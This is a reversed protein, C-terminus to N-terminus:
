TNPVSCRCDKDNYVGWSDLNTLFTKIIKIDNDDLEYLRYVLQDIENELKSIPERELEKKDKEYRRLIEEVIDNSKPIIIRIVDNKKVNKGSLAIQIYKAKVESDVIIPKEKGIIVAFETGELNREIKPSLMKHSSKFKILILDFEKGLKRYKRIYEDPFTNIRQEIKVKNLIKEVRKIIELAIKEDEKTKPLKIPLRELYVRTFSYYRGQVFTSMKTIILFMLKSNLIGLLYKMDVSKKPIIAVCSDMIYFDGNEDLAFRNIDSIRPTIIKPKSLLNPDRERWLSYWGKGWEEIYKGDLKRGQLKDYFKHLYKSLNPYEDLNILNGQSDYPYIIYRGDWSIRWREVDRGKLVKKCANREISHKIITDHNVVYIKEGFEGGITIGQFIEKSIDNLPVYADSRLLKEIIDSLRGESLMWSEQSLMGQRIEYTNFLDTHETPKHLKKILERSSIESVGNKIEVFLFTNKSSNKVNRCRELIIICPYNTADAFIRTDGFDIVQNIKCTKLIISRIGKGYNTKLFRNQVIFGLKGGNKLWYIGREIFLVYIDYKGVASKYVEKYYEKLQVDSLSGKEGKLIGGWPPNGVVFDYKVHNKLLSALAFDEISKILRGDGFKYKLEKVVDILKQAYPEFFNVLKTWDKDALYGKFAKELDYRSINDKGNSFADKVCDFVAQLALFYEPINLLGTRDSVAVSINPMDIEVKIFEREEGRRIPLRLNMTITDPNDLSVKGTKTEDELSDTRFIPLRRLTFTKNADIAKKYYPLLVLMFQIQAMLTAFPHIDFGVIHFEKCLKDLVFDWGKEEGLNEAEKLWRKLAEVLFTGSGCAPDLLRKEIISKGRYGIADIIYEVVERPTYFEGLAKRTEKDFYKQYLTGLPDGVIESFDFKYLTLLVQGVARSFNLMYEDVKKASFIEDDSLKFDDIWWYFIDEEFVSEVLERRMKEILNRLLVAWAVMPIDRGRFSYRRVENQIFGSFSIHPFGYDECAKALILRTFLAYATELCFMFRYLTEDAIEGILKDLIKQWNEPIKEPKRAYYKKWFDYANTLFNLKGYRSSFLNFTREVLKAFVSDEKLEFSAFFHERAVDDRLNLREKVNKFRGFYNLIQDVRTIDLEPKRLCVYIVKCDDITINSLDVDLKVDYNENIREYIILKAGDTLVGYKAKLPKVYNDWLQKFDERNLGELPKKVEIVFIINNYDDLCVIDTRKERVRKEIRIDKGIKRYGLIKLIEKEILATKLEDHSEYNKADEHLDRFKQKLENLIKEETM